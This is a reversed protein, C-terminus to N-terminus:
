GVRPMFGGQCNRHLFPSVVLSGKLGLAQGRRCSSKGAGLNGGQMILFLCFNSPNVFHNFSEVTEFCVVTLPMRRRPGTAVCVCPRPKVVFTESRAVLM